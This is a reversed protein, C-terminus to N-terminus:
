AFFCMTLTVKERGHITQRQRNNTRKCDRFAILKSDNVGVCRLSAACICNDCLYAIKLLIAIRNLTIIDRVAFCFACQYLAQIWFFACVCGTIYPLWACLEWQHEMEIQYFRWFFLVLHCGDLTQRFYCYIWGTECVSILWFVCVCGSRCM